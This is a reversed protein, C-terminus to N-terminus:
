LERRDARDGRDPNARQFGSFHDRGPWQMYSDIVQQLRDPGPRIPTNRGTKRRHWIVGLTILSLVAPSILGVKIRLWTDNFIVTTLEPTLPGITFWTALGEIISFIAYTMLVASLADGFWLRIVLTLMFSLMFLSLIFHMGFALPLARVFWMFLAMYLGIFVVHRAKFKVRYLVLATWTLVASEPIAQFVVALVPMKDM